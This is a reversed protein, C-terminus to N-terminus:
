RSRLELRLVAGILNRELAMSWARAGCGCAAGVAQKAAGALVDAVASV